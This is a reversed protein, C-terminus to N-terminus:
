LQRRPTILPPPLTAHDHRVRNDITDIMRDKQKVVLRAENFWSVDSVVTNHQPWDNYEEHLHPQRVLSMKVSLSDVSNYVGKPPIM